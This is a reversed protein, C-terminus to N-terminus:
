GGRGAWWALLDATQHDLPDSSARRQRLVKLAREIPLGERLAIVGAAVTASRQMGARCHLYVHRGADLAECVETVARALAPAPLNGYDVLPLRREAIGAAALAAEVAAREGHGYERDECLNYVDDVGAAALEAVDAADRPYAGTLLGETVRGFGLHDFWESM